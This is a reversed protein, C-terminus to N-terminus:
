ITDAFNEEARKFAWLGIVLMVLTIALSVL